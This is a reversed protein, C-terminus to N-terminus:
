RGVSLEGRPIVRVEATLEEHSLVRVGPFSPHLLGRLHQRVQPTTMVVDSEDLLAMAAAMIDARIRPPLVLVPVGDRERV